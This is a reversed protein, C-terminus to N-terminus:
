QRRVDKFTQKRKLFFNFVKKNVKWKGKDPSQLKGIDTKQLIPTDEIVSAEVRRNQERGIVTSQDGIPNVGASTILRSTADAIDSASPAYLDQFAKIISNKVFEARALALSSSDISHDNTEISDTFGVLSVRLFRYNMLLTAITAVKENNKNATTLTIGPEPLVTEFSPDSFEAASYTNRYQSFNAALKDIVITMNPPRVPQKPANPLDGFDILNFYSITDKNNIDVNVYKAQMGRSVQLTTMRDLVGNASFFTQTVADVYYIEETPVYYVSMGKKIGRQGKITITGKRTFPLYSHTEILYRLEELCFQYVKAFDDFRLFDAYNSIISLPKSGWIEAYEVFFVAPVQSYIFDATGAITNWQPTLQYWSYINENNWDLDDSYVENDSITACTLSNFSEKNFPPKRAIFYYKDGYTDGFFEVFPKQCVKNVFNLISGQESSISADIIAKDSVEKDIVIDVIQWIGAGLSKKTSNLVKPKANNDFDTNSGDHTRKISNDNVDFLYPAPDTTDRNSNGNVRVEFHLHPGTSIGTNGSLAIPSSSFQGLSPLVPIYDGVQVLLKSLHAYRTYFGDGHDIEIWLGYGKPENAAYTVTGSLPSYIKTGVSMGLDIGYHFGKLRTVPNIRPGYPSTVWYPIDTIRRQFVNLRSDSM